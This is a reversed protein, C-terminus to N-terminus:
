SSQNTKREHISIQAPSAKDFTIELEATRHPPGVKNKTVKIKIQNGVIEEGVKLQGSKRIDLRVSSYYKLANGGSTTEPSGFLVGIKMRIQNIFIILANSKSISATLKRLAQSMLRAQVGIQQDGMQGELESRPVLAAVSDVVIVDVTKSSVLNDVLELAEEGSDPQSFLLQDIKVGLKKAWTPDLAHEVDIFTCVCGMKQAEAIVSLAMTTKGSSEPGFIEIIRKRPLGGVGLALDLGLSGTPIVDVKGTENSDLRRIRGDGFKSEIDKLTQLIDGSHQVVDTGEKKKKKSFDRRPCKNRVSLSIGWTVPLRSSRFLLM